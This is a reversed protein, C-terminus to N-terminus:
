RSPEFNHTTGNRSLVRNLCALAITQSTRKSPKRGPREHDIVYPTANM